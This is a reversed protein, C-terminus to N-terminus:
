ILDTVKVRLAKAIKRLSATTPDRRGRELRCVQSRDWGVLDALDAQSMGLAVRRAKVKRPLTATM